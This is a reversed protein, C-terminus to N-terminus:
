KVRLGIAKLDGQLLKRTMNAAVFRGQSDRAVWLWNGRPNKARKLTVKRANM